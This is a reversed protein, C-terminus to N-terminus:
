NSKGLSKREPSSKLYPFLFSKIYFERLFLGSEEESSTFPSNLSSFSTVADSIKLFIHEWNKLTYLCFYFSMM